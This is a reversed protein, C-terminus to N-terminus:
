LCRAKQGQSQVQHLNRRYSLRARLWVIKRWQSDLYVKDAELYRRISEFLRM